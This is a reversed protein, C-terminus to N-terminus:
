KTATFEANAYGKMPIAILASVPGIAGDMFDGDAMGVYNADTVDLQVDFTGNAPDYTVGTIPIPQQTNSVIMSWLSATGLETSYVDGLNIAGDSTTLKFKILGLLNPTQVAVEINKLGSLAQLINVTRPFQYFSSYVNVQAPDELCFGIGYITTAGGTNIKLNKVDLLELDYGGLSLPDDIGAVGWLINNKADIFLVDYAEQMQDFSYLSKHYALGGNKYMFYWAYKGQRIKAKGGFGFTQEPNDESKDEMDIFRKIPFIRKAINDHAIKADLTAKFVALETQTFIMGKPILVAGEINGPDFYCSNLGTNSLARSCLLQKTSQSM